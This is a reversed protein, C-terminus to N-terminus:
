NLQRVEISQFAVRFGAGGQAFLGPKSPRGLGSVDVDDARLVTEGNVRFIISTSQGTTLCDGQLKMPQSGDPVPVWGIGVALYSWGDKGAITKAIEYDGDPSLLLHYLAFGGKLQASCVIGYRLVKTTRFAPAVAVLDVRVNSALELPTGVRFVGADDRKFEVSYGDAGLRTRVYENDPAPWGTSSAFHDSLLVSGVVTGGVPSANAQPLGLFQLSGLFREVESPSASPAKGQVFRESWNLNVVVPRKPHFCLIGRDAITFVSDLFSPVGRDETTAEYRACDANDTAFRTSTFSVNTLRGGETDRQIKLGFNRFVDDHTAGAVRRHVAFKVRLTHDDEARTPNAVLDKGFTVEEYLDEASRKMLWGSDPPPEVSADDAIAVRGGPASIPRYDSSSACGAIALAVLAALAAVSRHGKM